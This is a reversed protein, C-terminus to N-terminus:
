GRRGGEQFVLKLHQWFAKENHLMKSVIRVVWFLPLAIPAKELVPYQRKMESLPRFFRPFCYAFFRTVPNSYKERLRAMRNHTRMELSGYTGATCVAQALPELAEPIAAGTEFWCRSLEQVQQAFELLGLAELEKELYAGDMDPFCRFYIHNDLISRVGSGGEAMHKSLHIIYYLYEDEPKLRYLGPTQEMPIAKEWINQYYGTHEDIDPLLSTHLELATYPPRIYTTHHFCVDEKQLGVSLLAQEASAADEPHILMDLDSMQRDSLEPYLEKLWCGKVPLVHIGEHTLLQILNDREQLQVISQVLLQNVRNEWQLWVPSESHPLLSALGRFVLAEIAHSRSFDFLEQLSFEEPIPPLPQEQMLARILSLIYDATRTM